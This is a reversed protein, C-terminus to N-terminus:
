FVLNKGCLDVVEDVRQALHEFCHAMTNRCVLVQRERNAQREAISALLRLEDRLNCLIRYGEPSLTIAAILSPSRSTPANDAM